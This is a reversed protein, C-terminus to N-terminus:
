HKTSPAPYVYVKREFYGGRMDKIADLSFKKGPIFFRLPWDIVM